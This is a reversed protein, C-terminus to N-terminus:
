LNGKLPNIDSSNRPSGIKIAKIKGDKAEYWAGGYVFELGNDRMCISFKKGDETQLHVGGYVEELVMEYLENVSIKM